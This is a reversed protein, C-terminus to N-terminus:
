VVNCGMGLHLGDSGGGVFQTALVEGVAGEVDGYLGTGHTGSGQAPTLYGTDDIATAVLLTAIVVIGGMGKMGFARNGTANQFFFAPM